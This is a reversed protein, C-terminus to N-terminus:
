INYPKTNPKLDKKRKKTRMKGVGVESETTKSILSEEEIAWQTVLDKISQSKRTESSSQALDKDALVEAKDNINIINDQDDVCLVDTEEEEESDEPELDIEFIEKEEFAGM